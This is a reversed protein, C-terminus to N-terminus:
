ATLRAIFKEGKAMLQNHDEPASSKSILATTFEGLVQAATPRGAAQWKEMSWRPFVPSPYYGNKYGKLTSPATLFSGGAGIRDIEELVAHQDDLEFGDVLRRAQDIMEHVYVVTNPSFVKSGLTDGVFPALGGSSMSYTLSNMWYTDAAILDAGWGTGSGSTGCHPLHYHAMMEACALNLLISLPDYFNVMAKMDFFVPLMGLLIPAGEKFIQSITLGALLEAMLLALTGAPTLPTSAGAMSYNSFIVPLGREIAIHMKDVTGANMVLPSVPNFYPLLFPKEALNGQLHEFLDLVSSFKGEDSVLLVLPKTTNVLMELSGYLDSLPTPVDQVIGVTSIVDYHSLSSGLRVMDQMHKRTFPALEGTLPDQYFLTTVGIGFHLADDGLQFAPHGRRNFLEIRAPATALAWEVVEAPFQVFKEKLAGAGLRKILLERVSDSDVRVGTKSLIQLAYHHIQEKQGSTLLTLHPKVRNTKEMIAEM